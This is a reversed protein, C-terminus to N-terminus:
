EERHCPLLAPGDRSGLYRGRRPIECALAVSQVQEEALRFIQGQWRLGEVDDRQPVHQLVDGRGRAQEPRAGLGEDRAAKQHDRLTMPGSARRDGSAPAAPPWPAAPPEPALMTEPPAPALM